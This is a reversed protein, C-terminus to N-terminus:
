FEFDPELDPFLDISKEEETEETENFDIWDPMPKRYIRSHRKSLTRGCIVCINRIRCSIMEGDSYKWEMYGRAIPRKVRYKCHPCIHTYRALIRTM